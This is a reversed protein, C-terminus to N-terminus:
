FSELKFFDASYLEQVSGDPTIRIHDFVKGNRDRHKVDIFSDCFDVLLSTLQMEYPLSRFAGGMAIVTFMYNKGIKPHKGEGSFKAVPYVTRCQDTGPINRFARHIHGSLWLHIKYEPDQSAFLPDIVKRLKESLYQGKAGLPAGHALVVRFKANRFADSKVAQALWKKQLEMYPEIDWLARIAYKPNRAGNDGCDLVLFCVDGCRFMYYAKDAAHPAPFYEFYRHAEKGYMEHNGRVMVLPIKNGSLERFPNVFEEIISKDFNSVGVVDGLLGFFEIGKAEPSQLIRQMFEKRKEATVQLDSTLLIRFPRKIGAAPLTKFTYVEPLAFEKYRQLEDILVVRYEYTKDPLLNELRISHAAKDRRIMGGLNNYVRKWSKEGQLRYEVGAPTPQIAAFTITAGDPAPSSVWPAYKLAARLRDSLGVAIDFTHNGGFGEVAIQNAGKKYQFEVLHNNVSVVDEGNGYKCTDYVAKGNIYLKFKWDVGIGLVASGAKEACFDATLIARELVKPRPTIVKYLDVSSNEPLTFKQAKVVRKDPLVVTGDLARSKILGAPMNHVFYYNWLWKHAPELAFINFLSCILFLVVFATKLMIFEM